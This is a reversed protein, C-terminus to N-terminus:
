TKEKTKTKINDENDNNKEEDEDKKKLDNGNMPIHLIQLKIYPRKKTVTQINVKMCAILAIYVYIHLSENLYTTHRKTEM